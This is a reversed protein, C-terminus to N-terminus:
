DGLLKGWPELHPVNDCVAKIAATLPIALVLGLAGWLASWAMLAVTVALPNLHVRPGVLKPYLFNLAILHFLAVAGGLLLYPTMADYVPLASVLAPLIALPLGIYPVLSLFGSISGMLVPYPLWFAWFLLSTAMTLLLGLLFNGVMFARVMRAVGALSRAAVQRAPEDFLDLFRRRLHEQWSLMFYVLFPVFSAMLAAEYFSGLHAALYSLLPPREQRIRVEQVLPPTQAPATRTRRSPRTVSGTSPLEAKQQDRFRRPVVLEYVSREISEIRALVKDVLANVREQYKPLDEVLEAVQTYLGLGALYVALLALSCVIFSATARPIRLRTLLAVFPELLFAVIVACILTIFFHRGFYLLAGAAVLATFGGALNRPRRARLSQVITAM